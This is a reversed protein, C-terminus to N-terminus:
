FCSCPERGRDPHDEQGERGQRSHSSGRHADIDDGGPSEEGRLNRKDCPIGEQNEEGPTTVLAAMPFVRVPPRFTAPKVVSLPQGTEAALIATVLRGCTKGQCLGQGARTLRKVENMRTLGLGIAEKIEGRTVEECRCIILDDERM